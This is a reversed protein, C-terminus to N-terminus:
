PASDIGSDLSVNPTAVQEERGEPWLRFLASFYGAINIEIEPINFDCDKRFIIEGTAVLHLYERGKPIMDIFKLKKKRSLSLGM